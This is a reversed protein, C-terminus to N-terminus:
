TDFRDNTHVLFSERLETSTTYNKKITFHLSPDKLQVYNESSTDKLQVYNESQKTKSIDLKKKRYKYGKVRVAVHAVIIAIFGVFACGVGIQIIASVAVPNNSSRDFLKTVTIAMLNVLFYGELIFHSWLKYVALSCLFLSYLFVAIVIGLLRVNTSYSVAFLLYLPLRVAILVGSWFRYRDKFPGAYSDFLPKFNNVWRFVRWHSKSQLCPLFLLTVTYPVILLATVFIGFAFLFAYKFELFRLNGDYLWVLPVTVNGADIAGFSFITITTRLIKSYSLLILTAFVPVANYRCLHSIKSSCRGAVIIAGVLGFIYIPFAFQLWTKVYSDMGDYFCTEIGFDLNLWAIFVSLFKSFGSCENAPFFITANIRVVNTYFILGSLTGNSVTLNLLFLVVVLVLGM